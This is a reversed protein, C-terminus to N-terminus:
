CNLIFLIVDTDLLSNKYLLYKRFYSMFEEQNDEFFEPIDQSNFSYFIKCLLLLTQFVIALQEKNNANTEILSDCAKFLGLYTPAFSKM